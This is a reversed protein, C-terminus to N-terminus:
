RRLRPRSGLIADDTREPRAPHRVLVWVPLDLYKGLRQAENASLVAQGRRLQAATGPAIAVAREFQAQSMGRRYLVRGIAEGTAFRVDQFTADRSHSASTVRFELVRYLTYCELTMDQPVRYLRRLRDLEWSDLDRKGGEIRSLTSAAWGLLVEVDPQTRRELERISRLLAGTQFLYAQRHLQTLGSTPRPV